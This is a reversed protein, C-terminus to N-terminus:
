APVPEWIIIILVVIIIIIIIQNLNFVLIFSLLAIYNTFIIFFTM